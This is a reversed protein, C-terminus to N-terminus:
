SIYKQTCYLARGLFYGSFIANVGNEFNYYEHAIDPATANMNGFVYKVIFILMLLILTLYTGPFKASVTNKSVIINSRLAIIYGIIIGIILWLLYNGLMMFSAAAFLKWKLTILITPIVFLKPISVVHKKTSRIGIFLLYIFIGWVWLPAELFSFM